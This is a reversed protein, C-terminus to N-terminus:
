RVSLQAPASHGQKSPDYYEYARAARVAEWGESSLAACRYTPDWDRAALVLFAETEPSGHGRLTRLVARYPFDAPVSSRRPPLPQRPFCKM